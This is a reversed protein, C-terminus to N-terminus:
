ADKIRRMSVKLWAHFSKDRLNKLYKLWAFECLNRLYKRLIKGKNGDCTM